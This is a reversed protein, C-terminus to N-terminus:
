RRFVTMPGCNPGRVGAAEKVEGLLGTGNTWDIRYLQGTPQAVHFQSTTTCQGAGLGDYGQEDGVILPLILRALETEPPTTRVRGMLSIGAAIHARRSNWSLEVSAGL